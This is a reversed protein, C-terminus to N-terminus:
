VPPILTGLVGKVLDVLTFIREILATLAASYVGAFLFGFTIAIFVQGAQSLGDLWGRVRPAVKSRDGFHFYALTAATGFLIIVGNALRLGLTADPDGGGRLDLLNISATVQPLITGTVAGGVAAAAAVGVLLAMPLGGLPALRSSIKSLLLWGLVVPVLAVLREERDGNILPLVLRPLIVTNIAMIAAYGAAVGIFLHVALRYLPNDGILYSFVMLTLLFGVLAGATDVWSM